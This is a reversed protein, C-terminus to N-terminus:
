DFDLDESYFDEFESQQRNIQLQLPSAFNDLINDFVFPSHTIAVLQSCNPASLIDPLLHQQWELSLSLEPEDILVVKKGSYLYMRAFLSIMQKEGSSLSNLGIPKETAISAVTVSLDSRNLQLRKADLEVALGLDDFHPEPDDLDRNALYKNCTTVFADVSREIDKTTDVVDTLQDMFYRLFVNSRSGEDFTDGYLQEINPTSIEPLPGVRRSDSLREFFVELDDREPIRAYQPDWYELKEGILDNIVRATLDRYGSNSRRSIDSNLKRLQDRIDSLGFEIDASHISDKSARLKPRSARLPLHPDSELSLELRRYTPLYVVEYGSLRDSITKDLADIEPSASIVDSFLASMNKQLAKPNYSHRRYIDSIIPSELFDEHKTNTWDELLFNLFNLPEVGSKLSETQVKDLNYSTYLSEISESSIIQTECGRLKLEIYDFKINHLKGFRRTLINNLLSLLTTKGSGNRAIVVSATHPTDIGITRYGYLGHVKFREVLAPEEAKELAKTMLERKGFSHSVMRRM